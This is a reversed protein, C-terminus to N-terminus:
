RGYLRRKRIQRRVRSNKRVTAIVALILLGSVAAFITTWICGHMFGHIYSTLDYGRSEILQQM